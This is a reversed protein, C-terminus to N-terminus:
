SFYRTTFVWNWASTAPAITLIPNNRSNVGQLVVQLPLNGPAMGDLLRVTIYSGDAGAIPGVAEIPLSMPGAYVILSSSNPQNLFLNSTFITVRTHHDASMNFDDIVKFPGRVYTVANIAAAQNSSSGEEVFIWPGTAVFDVGTQNFTVNSYTRSAPSFPIGQIPIPQLTYNFGARVSISYTGDGITTAPLIPFGDANTAGPLEIRINPVGAGQSNTVRGSIIVTTPMARTFNAGTQNASLSNFTISGPSFDSAFGAPAVRYTGGATLNTFTYFGNADTRAMANYTGQIQDLFMQFDAVATGNPYTVRGSISYRGVGGGTQNISNFINLKGFGLRSNWDATGTFIDKVSYTTLRSKIQDISLSPNSQLLLAVAGTAVPTAMSTGSLGTYHVSDTPADNGTGIIGPIDVADTSLASYLYHGPASIEPKLRGDATPGPSSFSAASGITQSASRTVFAGVTIAGRATGPSSVLRSFDALYDFYVGVGEAWADFPQNSGADADQLTIKWQGDPAGPKFVLFIDPQDNASDMDGKDDNANYIELYTDSAQGNPFTFGNPDYSVPGLTTGDPRAVTVTFRDAHGQYLDVFLAEGNVNFNAVLSGGAPVTGRAHISSDGENGAAVCVARGAASNVLADIAREDPLTGDHPGFQAGLSLNIVFPEGLEGAKQQIFQIANILDTTGFSDDGDNERSAKVVILDAAPAMGNYTGNAPSAQGNGAATGAVHTGHGSKDRQKINDANQDAPKPLQLAANIEPETYLHGIVANQGPLSYNWGPDPTQSGYVTMDLLAKIRTQQGGSGPVTFDLHRFDIGTDIIGVVVGQGTQAVVRQGGSDIGIAQRARDNLPRHKVAGFVKAVTPLAALEPLRDVDVELTAIDGILASVDFGEKKLEADSETVLKVAVPVTVRNNADRSLGIFRRMKEIHSTDQRLRGQRALAEDREVARRLAVLVKDAKASFARERALRDDQSKQFSFVAGVSAAITLSLLVLAIVGTVRALSFGNHFSKRV